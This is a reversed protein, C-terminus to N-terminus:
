ITVTGGTGNGVLTLTLTPGNINAQISNPSTNVSVFYAGSGAAINVTATQGVSLGLNSQSVSLNAAYANVVSFLVGTVIVLGLRLGGKQILTNM